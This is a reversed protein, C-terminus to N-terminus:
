GRKLGRVYTTAKSLSMGTHQRVARVATVLDGRAALAEVELLSAPDLESSGPQEGRAVADVWNKADVLSWSTARRVEKIAAITQGETLLADVRIRTEPPVQGYPAPRVSDGPLRRRLAVLLGVCAATLLAAIVIAVVALPFTSM